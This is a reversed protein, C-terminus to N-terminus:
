CEHKGKSQGQLSMRQGLCWGRAYFLRQAFAGDGRRQFGSTHYFNMFTYHM